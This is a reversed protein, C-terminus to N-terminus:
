RGDLLDALDLALKERQVPSLMQLPPRVPWLPLGFLDALAAKMAGPGNLGRLAVRARALRAQADAATEGRQFADWVARNLPSTVNALATITGFAGAALSEVMISDSGCFLGFGPVARLTALTHALDDQSDKMGFFRHPHRARLELIAEDPVPVGSMQPIHYALLRGGAPVAARLIEDFYAVL